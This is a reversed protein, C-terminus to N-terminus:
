WTRFDGRDYTYLDEPNTPPPPNGVLLTLFVSGAPFGRVGAPFGRVGAHVTPVQVGAPFGRVGAPVTPVQVGAAPFGRVGAPVTPVQVGAPFGRVGAAPFGRVGAPVTPVQVGAPFGRVGTTSGAPVTPVQAGAPFGRVGTTSGAPPVTPVQVGAPVTPVQVGAPATPVQMGHLRFRRRDGRPFSITCMSHPPIPTLVKRSEVTLGADTFGVLLRRETLNQAHHARIIPTSQFTPDLYMLFTKPALKAVHEGDKSILEPSNLVRRRLISVIMRSYRPHIPQHTIFASSFLPM